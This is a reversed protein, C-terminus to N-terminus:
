IDLKFRDGDLYAPFKNRFDALAQLNLEVTCTGPKSNIDNMPQGKFDYCASHGSYDVKMGDTGLRNVGLCYSQNELARAKLLTNWVDTRPAPWNAVYILLDYEPIGKEQDLNNRSWVPFRLDYCILPLINWNKYHIIAKQLCPAYTLHEDGMRFLHRKDYQRTKGDPEVWYLRNYFNGNEKVIYSGTIAAKSQQAMQHMWKYTTFNVPEALRKADMSFGTNFMEPLAIIDPKDNIEWIKEEFMALNAGIDQWFLSTQIFSIKLNSM